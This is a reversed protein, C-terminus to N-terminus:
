DQQHNKETDNANRKEIFSQIQYFEVDCQPFSKRIEKFKFDSIEQGLHNRLSVNNFIYM